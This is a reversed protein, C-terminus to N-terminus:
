WADPRAAAGLIVGVARMLMLGLRHQGGLKMRAVILNLSQVLVDAISRASDAATESTVARDAEGAIERRGSSVALRHVAGLDGLQVWVGYLDVDIHFVFHFARNRAFHV